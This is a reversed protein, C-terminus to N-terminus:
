TVAWDFLLASTVATEPGHPEREMSIERLVAAAVAEANLECSSGASLSAVMAIVGSAGAAVVPVAHAKAATIIGSSGENSYLCLLVDCATIARSLEQESVFQAVHVIQLCENGVLTDSSDDEVPGVCLLATKKGASAILRAAEAATGPNKRHSLVGMLGLVVEVDPQISFMRRAEIQAIETRPVLNTDVLFASGRPWASAWSLGPVTLLGITEGGSVAALLYACARKVQFRIRAGLTGGQRSPRVVLVRLKRRRRSVIQAFLVGLLWRDVDPVVIRTVIPDRLAKSVVRFMSFASMEVSSVACEGDRVLPAIYGSYAPSDASSSVAVAARVRFGHRVAMRAIEAVYLLHHGAPDPEVILLVGASQVESANM